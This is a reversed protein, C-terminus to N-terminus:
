QVECISQLNRTQISESETTPGSSTAIRPNAFLKRSPYTSRFASTPSVALNHHHAPLRAFFEFPRGYRVFYQWRICEDLAESTLTRQSSRDIPQYSSGQEKSEFEWTQQPVERGLKDGLVDISPVKLHMSGRQLLSCRASAPSSLRDSETALLAAAPHPPPLLATVIASHGLPACVAKPRRLVPSAPECEDDIAATRKRGNLCASQFTEFITTSVDAAVHEDELPDEMSIGCNQAPSYVVGFVEMGPIKKDAMDSLQAQQLLEDERSTTFTREPLARVSPNTLYSFGVGIAHWVAKFVPVAKGIFVAAPSSSNPAEIITVKVCTASSQDEHRAVVTQGAQRQQQELGLLSGPIVAPKITPVRLLTSPQALPQMISLNPQMAPSWSAPTLLPPQQMPSGTSYRRHQFPPSTRGTCPRVRDSKVQWALRPVACAPVIDARRDTESGSGPNPTSSKAKPDSGAQRKNNYQLLSARFEDNPDDERPRKIGAEECNSSYGPTIGSKDSGSGNADRRPRRPLALPRLARGKTRSIAATVVKRKTLVADYRKRLQAAAQERKEEATLKAVLDLQNLMRRGSEHRLVKGDPGKVKKEQWGRHFPCLSQPKLVQKRTEKEVYAHQAVPATCHSCSARTAIVYFVAGGRAFRQPAHHSQQPDAVLTALDQMITQGDRHSILYHQTRDRQHGKTQRLDYYVSPLKAPEAPEWSFPNGSDRLYCAHVLAEYFAANTSSQEATVRMSPAAVMSEIDTGVFNLEEIGALWVYVKVSGSHM